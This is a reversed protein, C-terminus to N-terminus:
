KNTVVKGNLVRIYHIKEARELNLEGLLVVINDLSDAEVSSIELNQNDKLAQGLIKEYKQISYGESVEANLQFACFVLLGTILLISLVLFIRSIARWRLAFCNRFIIPPNLTLISNM